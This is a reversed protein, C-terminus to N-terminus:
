HHEEGGGGHHETASNMFILTLLAFVLAQIVGVFLELGFFALNAVSLIYGMVFLLVMGAFMNGLLRFSFSIIKSIESVLELIGVAPDIAKIPNGKVKDVWNKELFPFFKQLYSFGLHKFGFYQVMVMAILAFALTFNLDTSAPRLLPVITWDATEINRGVARGHSDTEIAAGEQANDARILFLGDRLGWANTEDEALGAEHMAEELATHDVEEGAAAAAATLEKEVELEAFHPKHEWLGISDYGPILGMWNSVLIILIFSMFYPFFERVKPGAINQAFNYAGELIMEFVNYFGTPVEDATRSRARLGFALLLVVGWAVLTAVFTNILGANNFLFSPMLGETGPYPEGPLQIFPLVPKTYAIVSGFLIMLAILILLIYRKKIRM